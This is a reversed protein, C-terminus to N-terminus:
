WTLATMVGIPKVAENAFLADAADSLQTGRALNVASAVYVSRIGINSAGRIDTAVGDGIALVRGKEIRRGCVRAAIDLAAAYIPAHPKGAYAVEGGLAEYAEAIAGACYIIKGGREAKVDPNACIMPMGRAYLQQLQDAYNLPSEHEDDYLGTCLIVEARDMDVLKVGLGDFLPLDRAPGIHLAPRNATDVILGRSVDGSTIVADYSSPDVGIGNLQAIVGDCPRPSNSVLIVQGGAKRFTICATVASAFPKIGNHLVGWIDLLWVDASPGLPAITELVPIASMKSGM